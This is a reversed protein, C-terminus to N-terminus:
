VARIETPTSHEATWKLLCDLTCFHNEADSYGGTVTLFAESAGPERM